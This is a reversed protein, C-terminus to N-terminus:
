DGRGAAPLADAARDVAPFRSVSGRRLHAGRDGLRDLRVDEQRLRLQEGAAIRIMEEVLDLGTVLETVPHEVQLRTNMELFYFKRTAISSSSSPAPAATASPAPSRSRRRAWRRARRQCRSLVVAGGRRDEPQAAPHLMRARRSSHCQRARRRAGPDRHPAARRHIERHLRSRRRLGLAGGLPCASLGRALAAEAAAIRMGKGGGGASAKIMVPYGIRRGRDAGGRGRRRGGGSPRARDAVGAEAAISRRSSRTAWRRSRTPRRVSSSSARRRSRARSPRRERLPLRLGSAGGRRRDAPLGRSHQEISLYSERRRRRGSRWRRTRWRSTCRTATPRRISPSTAIGMRRATRIVRCAIEGRNAVLIKRFM